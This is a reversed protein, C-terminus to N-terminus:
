ILGALVLLSPYGHPCVGDPEVECEYPCRTPTPDGDIWGYLVAEGYEGVLSEFTPAMDVRTM